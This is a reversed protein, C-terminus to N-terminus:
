QRVVTSCELLGIGWGHGILLFDVFVHFLYLLVVFLFPKGAINSVVSSKCLFCLQFFFSFLNELSVLCMALCM